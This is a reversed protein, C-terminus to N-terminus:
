ITGAGDDQITVATASTFTVVFDRWTGTAITYTGSGLTVGTGAALTVTGSGTNRIRLRYSEGIQAGPSDAFIQTGTRTTLTSGGTSVTTTLSVYDAGTILGATLTAGTLATTNRFAPPRRNASDRLVNVVEDADQPDQSVAIGIRVGVAQSPSILKNVPDWYVVTGYALAAGSGGLTAKPLTQVSLPTVIMNGQTMGAIDAQALGTLAGVTVVDGKAVNSAPWIPVTCLAQDQVGVVPM